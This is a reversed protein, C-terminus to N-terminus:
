RRTLTLPVGGKVNMSMRYQHRPAWGHPAAFYYRQFATAITLVAEIYAMRKGLCMRRGRGFNQFSANDIDGKLWRDPRFDDADDGWFRPDRHLTVNSHLVTAGAPIRYGGIEDDELAVKPNFVLGGQLRAAEDFCARVFELQSIDAPTVPRGGLMDVEARVRDAVDGHTALLAFVWAMAAATTEHGGIVLFLMETRVKHEELPSGDEYTADLLVNLLDTQETPASRREDVIGALYEDLWADAAAGRRAVPRPVWPPFSFMATRATTALMRADLKELLQPMERPAIRRSFMANYLVALALEKLPETLDLPTGSDAAKGWADVEDVIAETFRDGLEVLARQTFHPQMLQRGRAWEGDDEAFFSAHHPSAQVRMSDRVMAARGYSAAAKLNVHAIHDPHSLLILETFPMPLRVIDGYADRVRAPYFWPDRAFEAAWRVASPGRPGPPLPLRAAAPSRVTTAM